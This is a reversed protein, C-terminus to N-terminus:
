RAWSKIKVKYLSHWSRDYAQGEFHKAMRSRSLEDDGSFQVSEGHSLRRVTGPFDDPSIADTRGSAHEPWLHTRRFNGGANPAQWISALSSRFFERISQLSRLIAQDTQGKELNAFESSVQAVLTEFRLREAVQEQALRRRRQEV